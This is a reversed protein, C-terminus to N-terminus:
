SVRELGEVAVDKVVGQGLPQGVPQKRALTPVLLGPQVVVPGPEVVGEAAAEDLRIRNHRIRQIRPRPVPKPIHIPIRGRQHIRTPM